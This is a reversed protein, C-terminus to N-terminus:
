NNTGYYKIILIIIFGFVSGASTFLMDKFNIYTKKFILDHFEKWVGASIGLSLGGIPHILGFAVSILAGIIFHLIKDMM